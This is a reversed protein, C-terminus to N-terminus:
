KPELLERPPGPFDAYAPLTASHGLLDRVARAAQDIAAHAYAYAGSDSNAIAVRGHRRRATEIPLPGDPWFDDWPRMYERAYGHAWRNITIAEIDVAPNFGGDGLARALLDRIEFEMDAFTLEALRRRGAVSQERPAIARSSGQPVKLLNVLMPEDPDGAFRYEGMSVPFDIAAGHWSASPATFGRIGLREFARWNSILVNAFVLPVKQQDNLADVQDSHLETFIHPIVRHWCALVVHGADISKPKGHDAYTLRVADGTESAGTHAVAIVPANLRMRVANEARDLKGYDVPTVVLSAMGRGPLAAPILARVLARALGANGDPFHFIHPDPDTLSRRATASMARDALDGLGMADFGPNGNGWADLASIADAGVGFYGESSHQFYTVLQPDYRCLETLFQAYTTQSLINFKEDRRRGALYDHPNDLLEILDRKARDNLPTEKVWGAAGETKRVLRDSGFVDQHFFVAPRLKHRDGWAEDYASKFREIDVGIDALLRRVAPSFYSPSQLSESGGYGIVKRGNRATFETRRAHGGFDDCAELILIRARAGAQQRYFFAAALGSIGGGVVVLDYHEGTAEPSGSVVSRLDRDRLAHLIRFSNADQGRLGTLAPPYTTVAAEAGPVNLSGAGLALLAAGDLFDRRTIRADMGLARRRESASM